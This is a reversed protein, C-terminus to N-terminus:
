KAKIQGNPYSVKSQARFAKYVKSMLENRKEREVDVRLEDDTQDPFKYARRFFIRALTLSADGTESEAVTNRKIVKFIAYGDELQMLDSIGGVPLESLTRWVHKEDPFDSEDCDGMAGGNKKELDPDETHADALKGFDEGARARKLIAAARVKVLANTADARKNFAALNAKVKELDAQSVYYENSYVTTLFSRLRVDFDINANFEKAFGAKAVYAKLEDMSQKRKGFNRLCEREVAAKAQATITVNSAALCTRIVTRQYIEDSLPKRNKRRFKAIVDPPTNKRRNKLLAVMMDVHRDLQSRTIDVGNVRVLVFDKPSPKQPAAKKANEAGSLLFPLVVLAVLMQKMPRVANKETLM